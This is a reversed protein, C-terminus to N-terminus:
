AEGKLIMDIALPFNTFIKSNLELFYSQSKVSKTKNFLTTLDTNNSFLIEDGTIINYNTKLKDYNDIVLKELREKSDLSEIKIPFGVYPNDSLKEKRILTEIFSIAKIRAISSLDYLNYHKTGGLALILPLMNISLKAEHKAIIKIANDEQILESKIGKIDIMFTHKNVLQAMVEDNSLIINLENANTKKIIFKSVVFEDFDSTDIFNCNPINPVIKEIVEIVKKLVNIKDTNEPEYLHKQYYEKKYDPYLDKMLKCENKSYLFYFCSYKGQKYFYNRYHAIVNIIDSSVEEIIYKKPKDVILMDPRFFKRFVEKLDVIINVSNSLTINQMKEGLLEDLHSYKIKTENLIVM